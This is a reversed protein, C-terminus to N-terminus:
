RRNKRYLILETYTGLYTVAVFELVFLIIKLIVNSVTLSGYGFAAALAAGFLLQRGFIKQGYEWSEMSMTSEKTRYGLWKHDPAPRIVLYLVGMVGVFAPLLFAICYNLM